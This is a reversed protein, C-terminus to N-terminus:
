EDQLRCQDDVTRQLEAIKQELERIRMKLIRNEETPPINLLPLNLTQRSTMRKSPDSLLNEVLPVYEPWKRLIEPPFENKKIHDIVRSLHMVTGINMLLEILIIGLSYMDVKADYTTTQRQEPAAYPLTGLGSSLDPRNPKPGAACPALTALGLDGVKMVQDKFSFFINPPKLDRHIIGGSHIYEVGTVIEKFIDLESKVFPLPKRQSKADLWNRLDCDCFEMQICLMMKVVTIGDESDDSDDLADSSGLPRSSCDELADSSAGGNDVGRRSEGEFCVWSADTEKWAVNRNPLSDNGFNSTRDIFSDTETDAENNCIDSQEVSEVWANNYSVINIHKLCAINRVERLVKIYDLDNHYKFVIKKVAYYNKDFKHRVKYVTGFGGSAIVEVEDFQDEINKSYSFQGLELDIGQNQRSPVITKHVQKIHEYFKLAYEKRVRSLGTIPITSDLHKEKLLSSTIHKFLLERKTEDKELIWCLTEILIHLLFTRDTKGNTEDSFVDVTSEEDYRTLCKQLLIEKAKSFRSM